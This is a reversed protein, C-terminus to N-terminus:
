IAAMSVRAYRARLSGMLKALEREFQLVRAGYGANTASSTTNVNMSLGDLSISKSAIGAGAILDGATDLPILAAKYGIVQILQHPVTSAYWRLVTPADIGALTVVAGSATKSSVRVARDADEGDFYVVVGHDDGQPCDASYNLTVTTAGADLEVAGCEQWFGIVAEVDFYGPVFGGRGWGPYLLRGAYAPPPYTTGAVPILHVRGEQPRVVDVWSLPLEWAPASGYRMSAGNVRLVPRRLTWLYYSERQGEHLDFRQRVTRADISLDLEGEVWAIAGDIANRYLSDPYRAGRDDTLDVGTLYSAQLWAPTVFDRISCEM